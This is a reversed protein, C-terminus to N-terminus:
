DRIYIHIEVNRRAKTLLEIEAIWLCCFFAFARVGVVSPPLGGMECFLRLGFLGTSRGNKLKMKIVSLIDHTRDHIVYIFKLRLLYLFQKFLM